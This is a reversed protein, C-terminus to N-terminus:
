GSGTEFDCRGLGDNDGNQRNALRKIEDRLRAALEFNERAIARDMQRQRTAIPDTTAPGANALAHRNSVDSTGKARLAEAQNANDREAELQIRRDNVALLYPDPQAPLLVFSAAEAFNADNQLRLLKKKYRHYTARSIARSGRDLRAFAEERATEPAPLADYSSDALLRAVRILNSTAESEITRLILDRWDLGSRKHNRATIYFRFSPRTILFLHRGIFDFIEPDDFWRGRAVERHVEVADPRFFVLLGRDQIAELNKSVTRWENAIISVRSISEFSPPLPNQDRTFAPHMSGYEVRKVRQTDCLCKLIATNNPSSFLGDLDDIVVPLLRAHYLKRYLDLSTHKGKILTWKCGGHKAQMRRKVEESKGLGPGGIISILEHHGDVFAQVIERFEDYETVVLANDPLQDRKAV